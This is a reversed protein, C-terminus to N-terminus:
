KKQKSTEHNTIINKIKIYNKNYVSYLINYIISDFLIDKNPSIVLNENNLLNDYITKHIVDFNNKTIIINNCNIYNIIYKYIETNNINIQDKIKVYEDFYYLLKDIVIINYDKEVTLNKNKILIIDNKVIELLEDYINKKYLDFINYCFLTLNFVNKMFYNILKM